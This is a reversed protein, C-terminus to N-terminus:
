NGPRATRWGLLKELRSQIVGYCECSARELGRRHRITVRGHRYRILGLQQMGAAVVSVTPRQVGLMVALFEHSLRFDRQQMRDHVTLLWRACRQEVTHLANCATSQIMQALTVQAYRGVVDSFPGGDALMRRFARLTMVEASADTDSVQIMADGPAIPEASFFAEIGVLGDSGVTAVEVMRGDTLTATISAVGANPFYIHATPESAKQLV